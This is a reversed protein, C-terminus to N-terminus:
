VYKSYQISLQDRSFLMYETLGRNLYVASVNGAVKHDPLESTFDQEIGGKGKGGGLRHSSNCHDLLATNCHIISTQLTIGWM